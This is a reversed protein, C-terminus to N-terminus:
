GKAKDEQEAINKLKGSDVIVTVCDHLIQKTQDTSPRFNHIICSASVLEAMGSEQDLLVELIAVRIDKAITQAIPLDM